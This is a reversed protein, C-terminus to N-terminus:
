FGSKLSKSKAGVGGLKVNKCHSKLIKAQKSRTFGDPRRDPQSGTRQKATQRDHFAPRRAKYRATKVANKLDADGRGCM